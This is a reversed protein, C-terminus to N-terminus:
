DIALFERAYRSTPGGKTQQDPLVEARQRWALSGSLNSLLNGNQPSGHWIKDRGRRLTSPVSANLSAPVIKRWRM